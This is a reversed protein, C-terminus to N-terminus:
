TIPKVLPVSDHAQAPRRQCDRLFTVIQEFLQGGWSSALLGTGREAVPLATVVSWGGCASALRRAESLDNEALSGAVFLKALRPSRPPLSGGEPIVPSLCVLGTLDIASAHELAAMAPSGAVILFRRGPGPALDPLHRLLDPLQAPDWPDDSLGHGPLDVAVTGIELQTAIEVPLSAWADLDAGPEHLLVATDRREGWRFGRLVTRSPLTWEIARPSLAAWHSVNGM